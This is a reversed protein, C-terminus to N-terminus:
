SPLKDLTGFTKITARNRGRRHIIRGIRVITGRRFCSRSKGPKCVSCGVARNLMKVGAGPGRYDVLRSVWIGQRLYWRPM